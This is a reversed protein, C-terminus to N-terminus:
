PRGDVTHLKPPFGRAVPRGDAYHRWIPEPGPRTSSSLVSLKSAIEINSGSLEGGPSTRAIANALWWAKKFSLKGAHVFEWVSRYDVKLGREALEAVLGRLTFDRKIRELMWVRHEGSIVKPRYGNAPRWVAPRASCDYGDLPRVSRLALSNLQSLHPGRFAGMSLSATM